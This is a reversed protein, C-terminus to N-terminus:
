SLRSPRATPPALAILLDGAAQSLQPARLRLDLMVQRALHRDGEGYESRRYIRTPRWAVPSACARPRAASTSGLEIWRPGPGCHGRRTPCSRPWSSRGASGRELIRRLSAASGHPDLNDANEWSSGTVTVTTPMKEIQML